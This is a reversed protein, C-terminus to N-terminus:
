NTKPYSKVVIIAASHRQSIKLKEAAIEERIALHMKNTKLKEAQVERIAALHIQNTNQKEM